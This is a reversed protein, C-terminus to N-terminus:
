HFVSGKLAAKVVPVGQLYRAIQQALAQYFNFISLPDPAQDNLSFSVAPLFILAAM